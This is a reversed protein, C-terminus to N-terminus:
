TSANENAGTPVSGDAQFLAGDPVVVSRWKLGDMPLPLLAYVFAISIIACHSAFSLTLLRRRHWRTLAKRLIPRQPLICRVTRCSEIDDPLMWNQLAERRCVLVDPWILLAVGRAVIHASQGRGVAEDDEYSRVRVPRGGHVMIADLGYRRQSELRWPAQAFGYEGNVTHKKDVDTCRM